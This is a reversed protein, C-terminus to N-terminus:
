NVRKDGKLKNALRVAVYESITKEDLVVGKASNGIPLDTSNLIGIITNTALGVANSAVCLNTSYNKPKM